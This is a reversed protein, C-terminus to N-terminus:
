FSSLSTEISQTMVLRGTILSRAGYWGCHPAPHRFVRRFINKRTEYLEAGVAGLETLAGVHLSNVNAKQINGLGCTLRALDNDLKFSMLSLRPVNYLVPFWAGKFM